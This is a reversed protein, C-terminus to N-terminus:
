INVKPNLFKNVNILYSVCVKCNPNSNSFRVLSGKAGCFQINKQGKNVRANQPNHVNHYFDVLGQSLSVGNRTYLIISKRDIDDSLSKHNKYGSSFFNYGTYWIVNIDKNQNYTLFPDNYNKFPKRDFGLLETGNQSKSYDVKTNTMEVGEKNTENM